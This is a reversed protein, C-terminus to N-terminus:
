LFKLKFAIVEMITDPLIMNKIFAEQAFSVENEASHFVLAYRVRVWGGVGNFTLLLITGEYLSARGTRKGIVLNSFQTTEAKQSIPTSSAYASFFLFEM